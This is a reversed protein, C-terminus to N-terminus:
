SLSLIDLFIDLHVDSGLNAFKRDRLALLERWLEFNFFNELTVDNRFDFDGLSIDIFVEFFETFFVTDLSINTCL